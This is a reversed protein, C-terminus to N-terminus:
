DDDMIGRVAVRDFCYVGLSAGIMVVPVPILSYLPAFLCINHPELSLLCLASAQAALMGARASIGGHCM